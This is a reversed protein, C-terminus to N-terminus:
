GYQVTLIERRRELLKRLKETQKKTAELLPHTKSVVLLVRSDSKPLKWLKKVWKLNICNMVKKSPVKLDM